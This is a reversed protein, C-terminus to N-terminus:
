CVIWNSLFRWQIRELCIVRQLYSFEPFPSSKDLIVMCNLPFHRVRTAGVKGLNPSELGIYRQFKNSPSTVRAVTPRLSSKRYCNSWQKRNHRLIITLTDPYTNVGNPSLLRIHRWTPSLKRSLIPWKLDSHPRLLIFDYIIVTNTKRLKNNKNFNYCRSINKNYTVFRNLFM